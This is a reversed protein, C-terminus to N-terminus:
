YKFFDLLRDIVEKHRKQLQEPTWEAVEAALKRVEALKSDEYKGKKFTFSENSAKKNLYGEFPVLNGLKGLDDEHKDKDWHVYHDRKRPLIHEFTYGRENGLLDAYGQRNNDSEKQTPHLASHILVLGKWYKGYEGANLKECLRRADGEANERYVSVYDDAGTEIAHCVKFITQKIKDVSNTVVGKIFCYRATERLLSIFEDRKDEPLSFVGEGANWNGHKNLFVFLPYHWWVNPFEALVGWWINIVAGGDWDTFIARYKRIHNVVDAGSKGNLLGTREGFFSRLEPEKSAKGDRQSLLVHMHIRFLREVFGDKTNAGLSDWDKIFQGRASEEANEYLNAKFIDADDLAMGRDNLKRFIDLAGDRSECEIPLFLVNKQLKTGFKVFEEPSQIWPADQIAEAIHEFNARFRNKKPLTDKDGLIVTKLSEKDEGWVESAIRLEDIVNGTMPNVKKLFRELMTNSRDRDFLAKILLSLTTLRQQGDIVECRGQNNENRTVVICGLFYEAQGSDFFMTLDDVLQQCEDKGWTYRRQYVPIIYEDQFIKGLHEPKATLNLKPM